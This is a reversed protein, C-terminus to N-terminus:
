NLLLPLYLHNTDGLIAYLGLRNAAATSFLHDNVDLTGPVEAWFCTEPLWSYLKLTPELGTGTQGTYTVQISFPRAPDAVMPMGDAAAVASLDFGTGRHGKAGTPPLLGNWPNITHTAQANQTLTGNSFGTLTQDIPSNLIGGTTGIAAAVTVYNCNPSSDNFTISALGAATYTAQYFATKMGDATLSPYDARYEGTLVAPATWTGNIFETMEMRTGSYPDQVTRNFAVRTGTRNVAPRSENDLTPVITPGSIKVPRSWSGGIRRIAFLDKGTVTSGNLYYSWFFIANGDPSIRPYYMYHNFDTFYCHTLNLPVSWNGDPLRETYFVHDYNQYVIKKGDASISPQAGGAIGSVIVPAQWANGDWRSVYVRMTGFLTPCNSYTVTNGDESIDLDNDVCSIGGPLPYSAGWVGSSKDILFLVFNPADPKYGLYAIRQGNGSLVPSTDRPPDQVFSSSYIANSAVVQPTGWSGGAFNSVALNRSNDAGTNWDVAALQSGSSDMTGHTFLYGNPVFVPNSWTTTLPRPAPLEEALVGSGSSVLFLM